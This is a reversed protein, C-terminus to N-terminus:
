PISSSSDNMCVVFSLNMDMSHLCKNRTESYGPRSEQGSDSQSVKLRCAFLLGSAEIKESLQIRSLRIMGRMRTSGHSCDELAETPLKRGFM